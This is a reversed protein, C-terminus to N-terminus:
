LEGTGPPIGQGDDKGEKTKKMAPLGPIAGPKVHHCVEPPPDAPTLGCSPMHKVEGCGFWVRYWGPWDGKGVVLGLADRNWVWSLIDFDPYEPEQLVIKRRKGKEDFMSPGAHGSFKLDAFYSGVEQENRVRMFTRLAAELDPTQNMVKGNYVVEWGKTHGPGGYGIERLELTSDHDLCGKEAFAPGVIRIVFDRQSALLTLIAVELREEDGTSWYYRRIEQDGQKYVVLEGARWPHRVTEHTARLPEGQPKM